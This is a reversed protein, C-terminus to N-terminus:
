FGGAVGSVETKQQFKSKLFVMEGRQPLNGQRILSSLLDPHALIPHQYTQSKGEPAWQTPWETITYKLKYSKDVSNSLVTERFAGSKLPNYYFKTFVSESSWDAAELIDTITVSTNASAAASLTSHAKFVSTDIGAKDIVFVEAM